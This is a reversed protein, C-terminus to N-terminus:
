FRLSLCSLGGDMKRYESMDLPLPSYGNQKLSAELGPFGAPILVRDNIRVCNAAYSEQEPVPIIRYDKFEPRDAMVEMLVLTNDGICSIGSKLHLITTMSRIDVFSSTCGERAVFDALQRAGEANTRHSVGIFFHNGAACIDGGELTGPASIEYHKQFFRLLPGRIRAVEGKRSEAGPRTLVAAQKTLVATDEVFTSDPHDLDQDLVTLQLGCAELAKCYAEHQELVKSYVPLGLSGQGVSTLGQSFNEGPKRVIANKFM